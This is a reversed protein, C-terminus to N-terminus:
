STPAAPHVRFTPAAPHVRVTPAAPLVFQELDPWQARGSSSVLHANLKLIGPLIVLATDNCAPIVIARNSPLLPLSLTDNAAMTRTSKSTLTDGSGGVALAAGFFAM